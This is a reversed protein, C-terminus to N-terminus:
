DPTPTPMTPADPADPAARARWVMEFRSDQGRISQKDGVLDIARLWSDFVLGSWRQSDGHVHLEELGAPWRALLDVRHAVDTEYLDVVHLDTPDTELALEVDAGCPGVRMPRRGSAAREAVPREAAAREAAARESAALGLGRISDYPARRWAIAVRAFYRSRM